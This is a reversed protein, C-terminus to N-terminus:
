SCFSHYFFFVFIFKVTILPNCCLFFQDFGVFLVYYFVMLGTRRGNSYTPM